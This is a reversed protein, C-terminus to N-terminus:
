EKEADKEALFADLSPVDKAKRQLGLQGLYRCLADALSTRERVVPLLSRNRLNVLRPQELIWSDISDLMLKTRVAVDLVALQQATVAERGGLDTLIENRWEAVAKGVATREDLLRSGRALANRVTHLAHKDNKRQGRWDPRKPKSEPLPLVIAPTSTDTM